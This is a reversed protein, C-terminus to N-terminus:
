YTYQNAPGFYFGLDYYEQLSFDPDDIVEGSPPIYRICTGDKYYLRQEGSGDDNWTFIFILKNDWYFYQKNCTNPYGYGTVVQVKRLEEGEYYKTVGEEESVSSLQDLNYQIYYYKDRIYQIAEESCLIREETNNVTQDASTEAAPAPTLEPASTPAPTLTPAPTFIPTPTLVPAATFTPAATLTPAFAPASASTAAPASTFVPLDMVVKGLGAIGIIVGCGIMLKATKKKGRDKREEQHLNHITKKAEFATQLDKYLENITQYREKESAELGKLLIQITPDSIGAKQLKKELKKKVSDKRESLPDEAREPKERILLYYLLACCQYTNIWPGAAGERYVELPTFYQDLVAADKPKIKKGIPCIPDPKAFFIGNEQIQINSPSINLLVFGKEHLAQLVELIPFMLDLATRESLTNQPNHFFIDLQEGAMFPFVGYATGSERFYDTVQVIRPLSLGAYFRIKEEMENLGQDFIQEKSPNKYIFSVASALFRPIKRYCCGVPMYEAITVPCELLLNWALYVIFKETREVTKGVFYKGQLITKVPLISEEREKEYQEEDFGCYPCKKSGLPLEKMCGMCLRDIEM